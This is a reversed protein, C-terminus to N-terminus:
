GERREVRGDKFEILVEDAEVLFLGHGVVGPTSNLMADVRAPDLDRGLAADLVPNGNDTTYPAGGEGARQTAKLGARELLARVSAMAFPMVEIPLPSREGLRKVLKSEDVLYVRRESARAVIKERTMAGGRGKIMRLDGDVEDAGDFLYDARGVRAFDEVRLGLERALEETAGSTAVCTVVLGEARVRDALARVARSAARGTGLGVVMGARVPGVAARALADNTQEM